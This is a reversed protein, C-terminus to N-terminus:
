NYCVQSLQWETWEAHLTDNLEKAAEYAEIRAMELSNFEDIREQYLSEFWNEGYILNINLNFYEKISLYKMSNAFLLLREIKM